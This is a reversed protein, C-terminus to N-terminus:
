MGLKKKIANIDSKLQEIDPSPPAVGSKTGVGLDAPQKPVLNGEGLQEVLVTENEGIPFGQGM